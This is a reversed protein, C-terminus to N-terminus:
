IEKEFVVMDTKKYGLREMYGSVDDSKSYAFLTNIGIKKAEQEMLKIMRFAITGNRHQKNIWTGEIHALSLLFMRGVIEGDDKAVVVISSNPDPCYGEEIELLSDYQDEPLREIKM